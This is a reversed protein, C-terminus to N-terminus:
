PCLGSVHFSAVVFAEAMASASGHSFFYWPLTTTTFYPPLAM